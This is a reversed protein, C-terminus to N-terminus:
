SENQNQTKSHLCKHIEKPNILDMHISRVLKVVKLSLGKGPKYLNTNFIRDRQYQCWTEPSWDCQGYYNDSASNAIHLFSAFIASRMQDVSLLNSRLAIGFYNQLKHILPATLEGLGKDKKLKRLRTGVKIAALM